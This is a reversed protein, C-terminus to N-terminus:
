RNEVLERVYERGRENADRYEALIEFQELYGKTGPISAPLRPHHLHIVDGPLRRTPRVFADCAFAFAADDGAWMPFREDFGGALRWTERSFVTVNGYGPGGFEDCVLEGYDGTFLGDLVEDSSREDLYLYRTHPAVLGPMAAALRIAERYTREHPLFSDPDSQVIIEADCGRVGANIARARTFPESDAVIILGLAMREYVGRVYEFAAQRHPDGLDRYAIVVAVSM